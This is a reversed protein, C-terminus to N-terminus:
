VTHNARQTESTSVVLAPTSVHRSIFWSISLIQFCVCIIVFSMMLLMLVAAVRVQPPRLVIEDVLASRNM